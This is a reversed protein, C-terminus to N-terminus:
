DRQEMRLLLILNGLSYFRNIILANVHVGIFCNNNSFQFKPPRVSLSYSYQNLQRCQHYGTQVTQTPRQLGGSPQQSILLPCIYSIFTHASYQMEHFVSMFPNLSREGEPLCQHWNLLDWYYYQPREGLGPPKGVLPQIGDCGCIYGLTRIEDISIYIYYLTYIPLLHSSMVM